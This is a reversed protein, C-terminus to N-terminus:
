FHFNPLTRAVEIIPDNNVAVTAVGPVGYGTDVVNDFIVKSQRAEEEAAAFQRQADVAAQVEPYPIPVNVPLHPASAQFGNEDAIWEVLYVLGNAGIYEYSGRMVMVRAEGVQKMQGIAEQKIGNDAEFAYNWAAEDDAVTGPANYVSRTIAVPQAVPVTTAVAPFAPRRRVAQIAVSAQTPVAPIGKPVAPLAPAAAETRTAPLLFKTSHAAAPIIQPHAAIQVAPARALTAPPAPEQPSVSFLPARVLHVRNGFLQLQRNVRQRRPRKVIKRRKIQKGSAAEVEFVAACVVFGIVLYKVFQKM